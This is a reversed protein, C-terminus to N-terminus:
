NTRVIKKALTELEEATMQLQQALYLTNILSKATNIKLEQTALEAGHDADESIGAIKGATKAFHLAAHRLVFRLKEDDTKGEMEPYRGPTCVWRESIYNMLENM